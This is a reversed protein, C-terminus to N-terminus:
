IHNKEPSACGNVPEWKSSHLLIPQHLHSQEFRGFPEHNTTVIGWSVVIDQVVCYNVSVSRIFYIISSTHYVKWSVVIDQVACYNVSIYM